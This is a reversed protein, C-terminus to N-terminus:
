KGHECIDLMARESSELFEIEGIRLTSRLNMGCTMPTMGTRSSAQDPSRAGPNRCVAAPSAALVVIATMVLNMQLDPQWLHHSLWGAKAGPIRRGRGRCRWAWMSRLTSIMTPVRRAARDPSRRGARAGGFLQVLKIKGSRYRSLRYYLMLVDRVRQHRRWPRLDLGHRRALHLSLCWRSRPLANLVVIFSRPRSLPFPSALARDRRRHRDCAV